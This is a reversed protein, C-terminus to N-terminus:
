ILIFKEYKRLLGMKNILYDDYIYDGLKKINDKNTIRIKSHKTQKNISKVIKTKINLEKCINEFLSWDTEYAGSLTFQYCGNKKNVYFCGDGDIWGRIFYKRLNIPIISLIKNPSLLSKNSYDYSKLFECLERCYIKYVLINPRNKLEYINWDCIKYFIHKLELLDTKKSELTIANKSLYGDAWLLGLIYSVEMTTIKKFMSIDRNNVIKRRVGRLNLTYIKCRISNVDKNLQLSCYKIGKELFNVRLFEIEEEKWRKKM